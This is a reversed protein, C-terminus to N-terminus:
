ALGQNSSAWLWSRGDGDVQELVRVTRWQGVADAPRFATWAGDRWRWIGSQRTAIWREAHGDVVRGLIDMVAEGIQKPWPTAVTEFRPGDRVRLLYGNRQGIWLAPQGDDGPVRRISRVDTDPLSGDAQTFTRWRGHEYLGLGDATSGVWLREGGSGDPE